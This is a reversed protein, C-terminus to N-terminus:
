GHGGCALDRAEMCRTRLRPLIPGCRFSSLTRWSVRSIGGETLADSHVMPFAFRTLWWVEVGINIPLKAGPPTQSHGKFM